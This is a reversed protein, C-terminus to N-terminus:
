EQIATVVGDDLYIYRGNGYVWQEHVGNETTTKNIDNPSGWSSAKVESATMGIEPEVKQEINSTNEQLEEPNVNKNVIHIKTTDDTSNFSPNIKLYQDPYYFFDVLCDEEMYYPKAMHIVEDETGFLNTLSEKIKSFEAKNTPLFEVGNISGSLYNTSTMSAVCFKFQGEVGYLSGEEFLGDNDERVINFHERVQNATKGMFVIRKAITEYQEKLEADDDLRKLLEIDKERAREDIYSWEIKVKDYINDECYSVFVNNDEYGYYNISSDLNNMNDKHVPVGYLYSLHEKVKDKGVSDINNIEIDYRQLTDKVETDLYLLSIFSCSLTASYGQYDVNNYIVEPSKNNKSDINGVNLNTIEDETMGLKIDDVSDINKEDYQEETQTLIDSNIPDTKEKNNVFTLIVAGMIVLIGVMLIAWKFRSIVNSNKEYEITTQTKCEDLRDNKQYYKREIDDQANKNMLMIENNNSINCNFESSPCGCNPCIDAKDSIERGCEPCKILAM